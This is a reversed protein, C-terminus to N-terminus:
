FLAMEAMRVRMPRFVSRSERGAARIEDFAPATVFVNRSRKPFVIQGIVREPCLVTRRVQDRVYLGAGAAFAGGSPQM